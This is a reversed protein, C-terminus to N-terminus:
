PATVRNFPLHAVLFSVAHAGGVDVLGLVQFLAAKHHLPPRVVEVGATGGENGGVIEAILLGGLGRWGERLSQNEGGKRAVKALGSQRANKGRRFVRRPAPNQLYIGRSYDLGLGHGASAAQGHLPHLFFM